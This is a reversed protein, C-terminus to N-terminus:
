ILCILISLRVLKVVFFFIKKLFVNIRRKICCLVKRAAITKCVSLHYLLIDTVAM